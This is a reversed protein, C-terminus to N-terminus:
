FNKKSGRCTERPHKSGTLLKIRDSYKLLERYLLIRFFDAMNFFDFVYIKCLLLVSFNILLVTFFIITGKKM